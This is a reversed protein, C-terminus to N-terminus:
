PTTVEVTFDTNNTKGVDSSVVRGTAGKFIGTGSTIPYVTTTANSAFNQQSVSIILSGGISIVGVCNGLFETSTEVTFFCHLADSAALEKGYHTDSGKYDDGLTLFQDGVAPNANPALATGGATTFEQSINKSFYRFTTTKAKPTPAAAVLTSTGFLVSSGLVVCTLLRKL